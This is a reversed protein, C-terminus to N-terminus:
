RASIIRSKHASAAPIAARACPFFPAARGSRRRTPVAARAPSCQFRWWRSLAAAWRQIYVTSWARLCCRRPRVAALLGFSQIQIVRRGPRVAPLFQRVQQYRIEVATRRRTGHIRVLRLGYSQKLRGSLRASARHGVAQRHVPARLRERRTRHVHTRDRNKRNTSASNMYLPFSFHHIMTQM